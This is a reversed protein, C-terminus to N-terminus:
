GLAVAVLDGHNQFEPVFDLFFRDPKSATQPTVSYLSFARGRFRRLCLGSPELFDTADGTEAAKV